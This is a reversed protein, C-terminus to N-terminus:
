EYGVPVDLEFRGFVPGSYSHPILRSNKKLRKGSFLVLHLDSSRLTIPNSSIVRFLIKMLLNHGTSVIVYLM